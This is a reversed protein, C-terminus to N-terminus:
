TPTVRVIILTGFIVVIDQQAIYKLYRVYLPFNTLRVGNLYMQDTKMHFPIIQCAHPQQITWLDRSTMWYESMDM